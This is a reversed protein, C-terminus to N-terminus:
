ARNEDPVEARLRRVVNKWLTYVTRETCRLERAVAAVRKGAARGHWVARERREMTEVIQGIRELLAHDRAVAAPDPQGADALDDFAVGGGTARHKERRRRARGYDYLRREVVEELFSTFSRGHEKGIELTDYKAVAECLWLIAQQQADEVEDPRLHQHQAALHGVHEQVRAAHRAILQRRAASDGLQAMVVLPGDAMVALGSRTEPLPGAVVVLSGDDTVALSRNSNRHEESM